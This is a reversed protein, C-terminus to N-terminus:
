RRRAPMSRNPSAITPTPPSAPRPKPSPSEAQKPIARPASQLFLNTMLSTLIATSHPLSGQILQESLSPLAALVSNQHGNQCVYGLQMELVDSYRSTFESFLEKLINGPSLKSQIDHLAQQKLDELGLRDALRYMSKPSCPPPDPTMLRSAYQPLAKRQSGLPAFAVAGTCLYFILARWTPFAVDPIMVVRGMRGQSRQSHAVPVFGLSPGSSGHSPSVLGPDEIVPARRVDENEEVKGEQEQEASSEEADGRDEEDEEDVDELDSDLAYDYDDVYPVKNSPFDKDVDTLSDEQFGKALLGDFYSSSARLMASNDYIPVPKDVRGSRQRRSFVYFKTDIFVGETLAWNLATRLYDSTQLANPFLPISMNQCSVEDLFIRYRHGGFCRDFLRAPLLIHPLLSLENGTIICYIGFCTTL